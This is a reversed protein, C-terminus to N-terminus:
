SAGEAAAQHGGGARTGRDRLRRGYGYPVLPSGQPRGQQREARRDASETVTAKFGGRRSARGVEHLLQLRSGRRRCGNTCEARARSAHRGRRRPRRCGLTFRKMVGEM